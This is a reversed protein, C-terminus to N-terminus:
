VSTIRDWLLSGWVTGALLLSVLVAASGLDKARGALEHRETGIRDITNEIAANLLEVILVVLISGILLIREVATAGVWFAAPILIAAAIVELRFAEENQWAARLGALSYRTAAIMRRIGRPSDPGTTM